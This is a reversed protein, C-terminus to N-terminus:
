IRDPLLASLEPISDLMSEKRVADLQKTRKWFAPVLHSNNKNDMFKIASQFGNSARRLADQPSLWALHNLYKERIQDRYESPAIDLRYVPPDTLVNINFDQPKILGRKSWDRHFDPLHWANLISLTASVYFDVRPCIEIMRRRNDEVESWVTGKRIYEGRSDAADLSAGVSVSHFKKWYDFVMRDKLRIETFNTNYILRVDFRGRRELEELIRYHEDTILPEGGAFYIQEVYDLQGLLQNWLDTEYKGAYILPRHSQAYDPSIAVQDQYWSSSFSPGCTRCRLNCLNNFRVDWYILQMPDVTGDVQTLDIKDIHHGHHKNASIRMSVFGAREQEYCRACGQTPRDGLMNLRLDRIPRDNWIEILSQRTTNGVSFEPRYAYGCCPYTQGSPEVYLHLWPYMCFYDSFLLRERQEPTMSDVSLKLPVRSNYTYGTNVSTKSLKKSSVALDGFWEVTIPVPDTSVTLLQESAVILNQNRALFLVVFFNSIDIQNISEVLNTLILGLADSEHLYEDDQSLTFVLRQNDHYKERHLRKIQQYLWQPRELPDMSYWDDLNTVSLLEFRCSYDSVLKELTM